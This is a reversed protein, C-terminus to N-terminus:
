SLHHPFPLTKVAVIYKQISVTPLWRFNRRVEYYKDRVNQRVFKTIVIPYKNQDAQHLIPLRHIVSINKDNVDIGIKKRLHQVILVMNESESLPIGKIELCDRRTYQELDNM